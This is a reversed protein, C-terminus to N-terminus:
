TAKRKDVLKGSQDYVYTFGGRRVTRVVSGDPRTFENSPGTPAAYGSQQSQFLKQQGVDLGFFADESRARGLATGRDAVGRDYATRARGMGAQYDEGLRSDDRGFDEVYRRDQTSLGELFRQHTTDVDRRELAQNEARKAASLLAIGGSNVGYKRAQEAQQRGLQGYQRTLAEVNRHYDTDEYQRQSTSDQFYRDRDTRLDTSARAYNTGLQGTDLGYDEAARRNALGIDQETNLLGRSASDRQADLSPDYYGSPIPPPAWPTFSHDASHAAAGIGPIAGLSTAIQEWPNRAV